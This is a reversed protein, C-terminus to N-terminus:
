DGKELKGKLQALGAFPKAEADTMPTVGPASFESQDLAADERRPYDPLALALAETLIRELDIEATLAEQNDDEPIEVEEATEDELGKIFLRSVPQDIRTAVPELTVVCSQEVTAGLQADVRWDSKGHAQVQGRFDLKRIGLIGLTAAIRDRAARDPTLHFGTARRQPLDAVRLVTPQSTDDPM